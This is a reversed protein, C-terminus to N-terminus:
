AAGAGLSRTRDSLLAFTSKRSATVDTSTVTYHQIGTGVNTIKFSTTVSQGPYLKGSLPLNQTVSFPTAAGVSVKGTGTGTATFYAAAIGGAGMILGAALAGAVYKRKFNLHKM